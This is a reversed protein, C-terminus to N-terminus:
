AAIVPPQPRHNFRKCLSIAGMILLVPIWIPALAAVLAIAIAVLAAVLSLGVAGLVAAALLGILAAVFMLPSIKIAVILLVAVLLIKLFTKM